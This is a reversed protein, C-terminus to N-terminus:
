PMVVKKVRYFLQEEREERQIQFVMVPDLGIRTEVDDWSKLDKSVQLTYEVGIQANIKIVHRGDSHFCYSEIKFDDPAGSSSGGSDGDEYIRVFRVADASASGSADVSIRVSATNGAVFQYDGLHIWRGAQAVDSQDLSLSAITSGSQIIECPVQSSRSSYYTWWIYVGYKGDAPLVPIWEFADGANNSWFYDALYPSSEDIIKDSAREWTGTEKTHPASYVNDVIIENPVPYGTRVLRVADAGAQGNETSVSISTETGENFSFEGLFVWKGATDSKRQNVLIKAVDEGGHKISYPVKRSRTAHMTWWAYVRYVATIPIRPHWTFSAGADKTWLSDSQYPNETTTSVAWNGVRSTAVDKNDIIIESPANGVALSVMVPASNGQGDSAMYTFHDVCIAGQEPVYRFSGDSRLVFEEAYLPGEVLVATMADGEIDHDNGLVGSSPVDLPRNLYVAYSDGAAQPPDNVPQISLNVTMPRSYRGFPDRIRYTFVDGGHYNADPIYTFSGDRELSLVGHVPMVVPIALPAIVRENTLPDGNIPDCVTWPDTGDNALVGIGADVVYKQDESLTYSDVVGTVVTAENQIDAGAYPVGATRVVGEDDDIDTTTIGTINVGVNRAVTDEPALHLDAGDVHAFVPSGLISHADQGTRTKWEEFDVLREGYWKFRGEPDWINGDILVSVHHTNYDEPPYPYDYSINHGSSGINAFINNYIRFNRQPNPVYKLNVLLGFFNDSKGPGYITNGVVELIGPQEIDIDDMGPSLELAVAGRIPMFLFNNRISIDETTKVINCGPDIRIGIPRSLGSGWDDHTVVIHNGEIVIDDTTRTNGFNSSCGDITISTRGQLLLNNRITVDHQDPRVSILRPGGDMYNWDQPRGDLVSDLIEVGDHAGWIKFGTISQGDVTKCNLTLNKFRFKGSRKGTAENLAPSGRAFFDGYGGVLVNCLAIHQLATEGNWFVVVIREKGEDPDDPDDPNRYSETNINYMEVDHMYIHSVDGGLSSSLRIAGRVRSTSWGNFNQIVLHAIEVYSTKHTGNSIAMVLGESGDIVAKDDKDFPPYQGDGDKDWGIIRMPDAPYEFGDRMYHTAGGSQTLVIEERFVGYICIIDEKGNAAGDCRNLAEQITKLPAERTGVNLDSGEDADVFYYDEDIDDGDPDRWNWRPADPNELDDRGLINDEGDIGVRGDRNLDLGCPRCHYGREGVLNEPQYFGAKVVSERAPMVYTTEASLPNTVGQDGYWRFFRKGPGPANPAISIIQDMGYSGSGSGGNVFLDHPEYIPRYMATVKASRGGMVMNTNPSFVDEVGEVDGQWRDFVLGQGAEGAVLPITEGVAFMGSGAGGIVRLDHQVPGAGHILTITGTDPTVELHWMSRDVDSSFFLGQHNLAGTELLVYSGPQVNLGSVDLRTDFGLKASGAQIKSVGGGTFVLRSHGEGVCKLETLNTQVNGGEIRLSGKAIRMTGQQLTLSAGNSLSIIGPETEDKSDIELHEGVILQGGSSVWVSSGKTKPGFRDGGVYLWTGVSLTGSTLNIRGRSGAGRDYGGVLVVGEGTVDGGLINLIGYKDKGVSVLGSVTLAGQATVSLSNTEGGAQGHESIELAGAVRDPSKIYAQVEVENHGIQVVDQQNPIRDAKWNLVEGWVYHGSADAQEAVFSNEVAPTVTSFVCALCFQIGSRIM